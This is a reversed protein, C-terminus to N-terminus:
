NLLAQFEPRNKVPNFDKEDRAFGKVSPDLAIAQKLYKVTNPVDGRRGYISSIGYYSWVFNELALDKHYWELALDYQATLEYALAKNFRAYGFDPNLALATDINEMAQQSQGSYALAIGKINYAKYFKDDQKIIEDATKIAAAYKHSFFSNYALQYKAELAQNGAAPQAAAATPASAVPTAATPSTSAAATAASTGAKPDASPPMHTDRLSLRVASGAVAIAFVLLITLKLKLTSHISM